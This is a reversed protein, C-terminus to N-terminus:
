EDVPIRKVPKIEPHDKDFPEDSDIKKDGDATPTPPASDERKSTIFAGYNDKKTAFGIQNADFDMFIMFSRVFPLGLIYGNNSKFDPVGDDSEM